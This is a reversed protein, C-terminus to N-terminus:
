FIQGYVSIFNRLETQFVSYVDHFKKKYGLKGKFEGHIVISISM